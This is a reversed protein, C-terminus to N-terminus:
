VEEYDLGTPLDAADIADGQVTALRARYDSQSLEESRRAWVNNKQMYYDIGDVMMSRYKAALDIETPPDDEDVAEITLVTECILDSIVDNISSYFAQNWEEGSGRIRQKAARLLSSMEIM